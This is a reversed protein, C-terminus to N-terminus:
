QKIVRMLTKKDEQSLLVWYIGAPANQLAEITHKQQFGSLTTRYIQHGALDRIVLQYDGKAGEPLTLNFQNQFPQPYVAVGELTQDRISTVARITLQGDTLSFAYNDAQGGTVQIPYVGALSTATATTTAVPAQTLVSANEGNVFGTYSLTLTPLAEGETISKDDASVALLAKEVSLVGNVLTLDYNTATGGQLIIPYNGVGSLADASTSATPQQGLDAAVDDGKFGSYTLTHVPNVAGYPRQQANATITLPAKTVSLTGSTYAMRYNDATGGQVSLIYTGVDSTTTAQTSVTPLTSFVAEDQGLVFGRYTLTFPPNADGYERQADVPSATLLAKEVTLAAGVHQIQYNTAAAGSVTIQYTGASAATTATTSITPETTLKNVDDGNVFGQYTYTLTPNEEGYTKTADQATVTLDAKQVSLTGRVYNIKYNEAAAGSMTINYSGVNSTEKASTGITPTTQLVAEDEGNVFGSYAYTLTPNAQGYTRVQDKATITLTAKVVDFRQRVATAPQYTDDGAQTAEITVVGVGTITLTNGSLTAPGSVLSYAVALGADSTASLTLAPSGYVQDAINSFTITQPQKYEEITITASGTSENGNADTVTLEVAVEGLDANTFSLTSTPADASSARRMTFTLGGCADTSGNDLDDAAITVTNNVTLSRTINQSVVSPATNDEPTLTVVTSFSQGCANAAGSLEAYVHYDTVTNVADTQFSIASGTGAIPGDIVANAANRLFYNVGTQSNPLSLSAAGGPCVSNNAAAVAYATIYPTVTVTATASASNGAVDTVTLTVTNAGLDDCDFTSVDLSLTLESPQSCNDTSGNNIAAPLITVTGDAGQQVTLNRVAVTPLDNDGLAIENGMVAGCANGPRPGAVWDTTEMNILASANASVKDTAQTGTGENFLFLNMLGSETGTLDANMHDVIETATRASNWFRVDDLKGKYFAGGSGFATNAIYGIRATYGADKSLLYIRGSSNTTSQLQGDYYVKLQTGNFVVALHFWTDDPPVPYEHWAQSGGREHVIYLKNTSKQLYIEIDSRNTTGISFLASHRAAHPHPAKVWAEFTYGYTYNAAANQPMVLFENSGDFDLAYNANPSTTPEAYVHYRANYAGPFNLQLANGTGAVPSGVVSNDASNRISYNLGVQSGAVDVQVNTTGTGDCVSPANHTVTQQSIFSNVTVNAMATAKNTSADTVTLAVQHTGVDACNFITKSLSMSQIGCNDSSGNDIMAETIVAEGTNADLTVTLDQVVVNPKTTDSIYISFTKYLSDGTADVASLTVWHNRRLDGCDFDTKDLYFTLAGCASATGDNVMQPTLTLTGDAGLPFTANNKAKVDFSNVHVTATGTNSNGNEDTATLTVTVDGVDACTFTSKDLSFFNIPKECSNRSGNNIQQPTISANGAADLNVTVDKTVVTPPDAPTCFSEYHFDDMLVNVCCGNNKHRFFFRVALNPYQTVSSVDFSYTRMGRPVRFSNLSQTQGNSYRAVLEWNLANVNEAAARFTVTGRPNRFWPTYVESSYTSNIILASQYMQVAGRERGGQTARHVVGWCDPLVTRDNPDPPNNFNETLSLLPATPSSTCQAYVQFSIGLWLTGLVVTPILKRFFGKGSGQFSFSLFHLPYFKRM